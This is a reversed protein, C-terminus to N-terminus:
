RIGAEHNNLVSLSVTLAERITAAATRKAYSYM